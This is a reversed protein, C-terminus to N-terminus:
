SDEFDSKLGELVQTTQDPGIIFGSNRRQGSEFFTVATATPYIRLNPIGYSIELNDEWYGIAIKYKDGFVNEAKSKLDELSTNFFRLTDKSALILVVPKDSQLVETQSNERNLIVSTAAIAPSTFLMLSSVVMVLFVSILRKGIVAISKM